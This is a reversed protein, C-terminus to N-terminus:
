GALVAQGVVASPRAPCRRSLSLIAGKEPVEGPDNSLGFLYDTSTHLVRALGAWKMVDVAGVDGRELRSMQSASLHAREAVEKQQMGLAMRRRRIRRGLERRGAADEM